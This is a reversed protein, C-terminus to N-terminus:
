CLYVVIDKGCKGCVTEVDNDSWLTDFYSPEVRFVMKCEKECLPCSYVMDIKARDESKRNLAWTRAKVRINIVEMFFKGGFLNM